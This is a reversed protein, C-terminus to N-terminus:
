PAPVVIAEVYYPAANLTTTVPSSLAGTTPDLHFAVVDNSAQNAVFVLGDPEDLSFHRPTKGTTSARSAFTLKRSTPDVAFTVVSDDGRNSAFVFQGSSAVQIEAGTNAGTFGAPLSSVTHIAALTGNGADYAYTTVTSANEAVVYAFANSPHFAIHRPGAGAPTSVLAAAPNPALKGTSADFTYQAIADAGKEALFAFANSSSTIFCHPNAGTSVTQTVAGLSGDAKVALVAASAGGYNAALLYSGTRDLSIHTTGSGSPVTNKATLAGTAPDLAFAAVAGDNENTAFVRGRAVDFALFSPFNGAPYTAIPTLKATARDLAFLHIKQDDAGVYVLTRTKLPPAADVPAAGDARADSGAGADNPGTAGDMGAVSADNAGGGGDVHPLVLTGTGDSSDGCAACAALAAALVVNRRLATRM